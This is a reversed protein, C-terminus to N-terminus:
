MFLVVWVSVVAVIIIITDPVPAPPYLPNQPSFVLLIDDSYEIVHPPYLVNQPPSALLVDNSYEIIHPSQMQLYGRTAIHPINDPWFRCITRSTHLAAEGLRSAHQRIGAFLPSAPSPILARM